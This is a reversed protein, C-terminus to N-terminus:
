WNNKKHFPNCKPKNKCVHKTGEHQAHYTTKYNNKDLKEGCNDCYYEIKKIKIIRTKGTDIYKKM